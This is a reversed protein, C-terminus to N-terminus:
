PFNVFLFSTCLNSIPFYRREEEKMLVTNSDRTKGSM